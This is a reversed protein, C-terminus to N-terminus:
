LQNWQIFYSVSMNLPQGTSIAIWKLNEKYIQRVCQLVKKRCTTWLGFSQGWISSVFLPYSSSTQSQRPLCVDWEEIVCILLVSLSKCVNKKYKKKNCVDQIKGSWGYLIHSISHEVESEQRWDRKKFNTWKQQWQAGVEDKLFSLRGHLVFTLSSQRNWIKDMILWAVPLQIKLSIQNVAVNGKRTRHAKM